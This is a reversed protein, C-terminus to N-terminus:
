ALLPIYSETHHSPAFFWCELAYRPADMVPPLHTRHLFREDFVIADGPEFEPVVTPTEAAISDVLDYDISHPSMVGDVPLVEHM